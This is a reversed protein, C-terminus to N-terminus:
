AIGRNFDAELEADINFDFDETMFEPCDKFVQFFTYFVSDAKSNRNKRVKILEQGNYRDKFNRM